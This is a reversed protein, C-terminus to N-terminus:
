LQVAGVGFIRALRIFQKGYTTLNWWGADKEATQQTDYAVTVSGVTKSSAPGSMAGPTGGNVGARQNQAALTIEHAVYLMIGTTTQSKWRCPNVQATALTAWFSIQADPYKVIDAFEPFSSRFQSIDM